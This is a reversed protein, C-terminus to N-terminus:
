PTGKEQKAFQVRLQNVQTQAYQGQLAAFQTPTLIGQAQGLAAPWNITGQTANGGGQYNSSSSALIQALQDAQPATLPNSSLAVASAVQRVVGMVPAARNFQQLQQEGADGLLAQQASTFQANEQQILTTVAPDSLPVGQQNASFMIDVLTSTHQTSLTEFKDIQDPTFNLARFLPAYQEAVNTRFVKMALAYLKPDSEMLALLARRDLQPAIRVAPLAAPNNQPETSLASRLEAIDHGAAAIKEQARHLGSDAAARDQALRDAAANAEQASHRFFFAAGLLFVLCAGLAATALSKANM